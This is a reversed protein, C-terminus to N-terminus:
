RIYGTGFIRKKVRTYKADWRWFLADEAKLSEPISDDIEVVFDTLVKAKELTEFYKKLACLLAIKDDESDTINGIYQKNKVLTDQNVINVFRVGRIEGFVSNKSETYSTYTNKDDLVIVDDDEKILVFTGCKLAQKMETVNLKPSVDDFITKRYCLSDKINLGLTLGAIYVAVEAATYQLGQYSGGTGVNVINSDDFSKSAANAEAISSNGGVFVVVDKGNDKLEKAWELVSGQIDRDAVGDLTFGDISYKGLENMAEQYEAATINTCGDNGGAFRVNTVLALKGTAGVNKSAVIEDFNQNFATVVVDLDNEIEEVRGVEITGEYLIIDIKNEDVINQSITVNFDRSSKYKTKLTITDAPTDETNQLAVTGYAASSDAIRYLLLKEPGGLFALKGLKYASYTIDKGFIDTLDSFSTVEVVEGIEGWNARIPMALIGHNGGSITEKAKTLFRNYIGALSSINDESWTGKPM